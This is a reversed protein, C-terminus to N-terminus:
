FVTMRFLVSDNQVFHLIQLKTIVCVIELLCRVMSFTLSIMVFPPLSQLHQQLLASYGADFASLLEKDILLMGSSSAIGPIALLEPLDNLM